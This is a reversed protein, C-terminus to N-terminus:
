GISFLKLLSLFGKEIEQIASFITSQLPQTLEAVQNSTQLVQLLEYIVLKPLESVRKQGNGEM